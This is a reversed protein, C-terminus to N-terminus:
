QETIDGVTGAFKIALIEWLESALHPAFPNLLLLLTRLLGVPRRPANTLANVLVMMQSIATNFSLTEIDSTVKKITAHLIKLEAKQPDVERVEDSLVWDGAQNEEMILRWVRALFRSVGEVGKMSWPKMQELPGMFMEYCRLADAGYIEIVDIPDIVNGWRK